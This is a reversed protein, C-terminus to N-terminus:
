ILSEKDTNYYLLMLSRVDYVRRRQRGPVDSIIPKPPDARTDCM